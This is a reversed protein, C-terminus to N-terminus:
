QKLKVIYTNIEHYKAKDCLSYNMNQKAKIMHQNKGQLLTALTNWNLTTMQETESAHISENCQQM